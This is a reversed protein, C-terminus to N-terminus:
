EPDYYSSNDVSGSTEFAPEKFANRGAARKFIMTTSFVIKDGHFVRDQDTEGNLTGHLTVVLDDLGHQYEYEEICLEDFYANTEAIEGSLSDEILSASRQVFDNVEDDLTRGQWIEGDFHGNATLSRSIELALQAVTPLKPPLGRLQTVRAEM